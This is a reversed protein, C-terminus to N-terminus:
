VKRERARAPLRLLPDFRLPLLFSAAPPAPPASDLDAPLPLSWSCLRSFAVLSCESAGGLSCLTRLMWLWQLEWLTWLVWELLGTHPSGPRGGSGSGVCSGVAGGPDGGPRSMAETGGSSVAERWDKRMAMPLGLSNKTSTIYHAIPTLQDLSPNRQQLPQQPHFLYISLLHPTATYLVNNDM